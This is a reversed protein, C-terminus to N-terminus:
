FLVHVFLNISLVCGWFYESEPPSVNKEIMSWKKDNKQLSIKNSSILVKCEVKM